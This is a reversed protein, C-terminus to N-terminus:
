RQTQLSVVNKECKLLFRCNKESIGCKVSKHSSGPPPKLMHFATSINHIKRVRALRLIIFRCKTALLTGSKPAFLVAKRGEFRHKESFKIKPRKEGDDIINVNM